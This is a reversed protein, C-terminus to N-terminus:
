WVNMRLKIAKQGLVRLKRHTRPQGFHRERLRELCITTNCPLCPGNKDLGFATKCNLAAIGLIDIGRAQQQTQQTSFCKRRRRVAAAAACQLTIM